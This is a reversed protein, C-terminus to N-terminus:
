PLRQYYARISDGNHPTAAPTFVVSTGTNTFDEPQSQVIGNKIIMLSGAYPAAVLSFATHVGDIVGNPGIGLRENGVWELSRVPRNAVAPIGLSNGPFMLWSGTAPRWVVLDALGDGDYDGSLAIDSPLGFQKIVPVSPNSSPIIYWVANAPRFVARDIIGDGDYDAPVPIDGLAGWQSVLPTPMSPGAQTTVIRSQPITQAQLALTSFFLLHKINMFDIERNCKISATYLTSLEPNTKRMSIVYRKPKQGTFLDSLGEQARLL